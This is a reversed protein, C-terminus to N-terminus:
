LLWPSLVYMSTRSITNKKKGNLDRLSGRAWSIEILKPSFDHQNQEPPRFVVVGLLGLQEQKTPLALKTTHIQATEAEFCAINCCCYGGAIDKTGTVNCVADYSSMECLRFLLCQTKCRETFCHILIGWLLLTADIHFLACQVFLTMARLIVYVSMFDLDILYQSNFKGM